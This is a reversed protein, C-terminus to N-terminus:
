FHIIWCTHACGYVRWKGLKRVRSKWARAPLLHTKWSVYCGYISLIPYGWFHIIAAYSTHFSLFTSCNPPLYLTFNRQSLLWFHISNLSFKSLATSLSASCCRRWSTLLMGQFTFNSFVNWEVTRKRRPQCFGLPFLSTWQTNLHSNTEKPSSLSPPPSVISITSLFFSVNTLVQQEIWQSKKYLSCLSTQQFTNGLM